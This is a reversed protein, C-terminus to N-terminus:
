NFGNIFDVFQQRNMPGLMIKMMCLFRLSDSNTEPHKSIDSMMSTLGNRTKKELTKYFDYEQIARDKCWKM